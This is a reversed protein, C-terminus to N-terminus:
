WSIRTMENIIGQLAFPLLSTNVPGNDLGMSNIGGQIFRQINLTNNSKITLDLYKNMHQIQLGNSLATFMAKNDQLFSRFDPLLTSLVYSEKIPPIGADVTQTSIPTKYTLGSFNEGLLEYNDANLDINDPLNLAGLATAAKSNKNFKISIGNKNNFIKASLLCLSHRRQYLATSTDMGHESALLSEIIKAGNGSFRIIEPYIDSVDQEPYFEDIVLKVYKLIAYYYFWVIISSEKFTEAIYATKDRDKPLKNLEQIFAQHAGHKAHLADGVKKKIIGNAQISPIEINSDVRTVHLDGVLNGAALPLSLKLLQKNGRLICIDTTGGGIDINIISNQMGREHSDFFPAISEDIGNADCKMGPFIEEAVKPWISRITTRQYQGFALPYFWKLNIGPYYIIEGSAILEYKILLLINSIYNEVIPTAIDKLNPNNIKWKFEPLVKNNRDVTLNTKNTYANISTLVEHETKNSAYCVLSRLPNSMNVSSYFYSSSCTIFETIEPENERQLSLDITALEKLSDFKMMEAAEEVEGKKKIAIATNSTGFDVAIDCKYREDSKPACEIFKPILFGHYNDGPYGLTITFRILGPQRALKYNTLIGFNPNNPNAIRVVPEHFHLQKGEQYNKEYFELSSQIPYSPNGGNSYLQIFYDINGISPVPHKLAFNPFVSVYWLPIEIIELKTIDFEKKIPYGDQYGTLNIKAEAMLRGFHDQLDYHYEIPHGKETWHAYTFYKDTLPLLYQEKKSHEHNSLRGIIYNAPDIRYPLKILKETFMDTDTLWQYKIITGPLIDKNKLKKLNDKGVPITLDFNKIIKKNDKVSDSIFIVKSGSLDPHLIEYDSELKFAEKKLCHFAFGAIALTQDAHNTEEYQVAEILNDFGPTAIDESFLHQLALKMPKASALKMNEKIYILYKLFLAPRNKINLDANETDFLRRSLGLPYDYKATIRHYAPFVLSFPSTSGIIRSTHNPLREKILIPTEYEWFLHSAKQFYNNKDFAPISEFVLDINYVHRFFIMELLDFTWTILRKEENTLAQEDKTEALKNFAYEVMHFRAWPTPFTTVEYRADDASQLLDEPKLLIPAWDKKPDSNASKSDIPPLLYRLM